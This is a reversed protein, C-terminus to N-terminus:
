GRTPFFVRRSEPRTRTDGTPLFDDGCGYGDPRTGSLYRTDTSLNDDRRIVQHAFCGVFGVEHRRVRIAGGLMEAEGRAAEGARERRARRRTMAEERRAAVQGRGQAVRRRVKHRM